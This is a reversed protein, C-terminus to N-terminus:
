LSFSYCYTKYTWSAVFACMYTILTYINIIGDAYACIACAHACEVRQNVRCEVHLGSLDSVKKEIFLACGRVFSCMLFVCAGFGPELAHRAPIRYILHIHHIARKLVHRPARWELSTVWDFMKDDQSFPKANIPSCQLGNNTYLDRSINTKRQKRKGLAKYLCIWGSRNKRKTAGSVPKKKIICIQLSICNIQFM